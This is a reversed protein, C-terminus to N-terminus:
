PIPLIHFVKNFKIKSNVKVIVIIGQCKCVLTYYNFDQITPSNMLVLYRNCSFCGGDLQISLEYRRDSSNVKTTIGKMGSMMAQCNILKEIM